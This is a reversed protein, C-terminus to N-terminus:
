APFLRGALEASLHAAIFAALACRAGNLAEPEWSARAVDLWSDSAAAQLRERVSASLLFPGGGFRRGVVAGLVPDFYAAKGPPVPENSRGCVSLRPAIGALALTRMAFALLAARAPDPEHDLLTLFQVAGMFVRAEPVRAAHADRVLALAAGCVEMRGLDLLVESFSQVIEARKLTCLEGSGLELEVRILAYPELSGAFRRRSGKAGRAVASVKGLDATFLTVIRDADRYDHARLLLADTVVSAREKGRM